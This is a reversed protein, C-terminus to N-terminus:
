PLTCEIITTTTSPGSVLMEGDLRIFVVVCSFVSSLSLSILKINYPQNTIKFFLPFEKSMKKCADLLPSHNLYSWRQCRLSSLHHGKKGMWWNIDVVIKYDDVQAIIRMKNVSNYLHRVRTWNLIAAMIWKPSLFFIRNKNKNKKKKSSTMHRDDHRPHKRHDHLLLLLCFPSHRVTNCTVSLRFLFHLSKTIPTHTHTHIIMSQRCLSM